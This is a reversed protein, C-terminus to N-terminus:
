RNEATKKTFIEKRISFTGTYHLWSLKCKGNRLHGTKFDRREMAHRKTIRRIITMTGRDAKASVAVTSALANYRRSSGADPALAM